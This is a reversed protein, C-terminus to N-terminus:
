IPETAKVLWAAAEPELFPLLQDRVKQHYTDLWGREVETLWEAVILHMDIPVLTLTEFCYFPRDAKPPSETVLVLNEIRIGFDDPKYYGPENSLIMGPQLAIGSGSKSIWQPGEHVNLFCGVGHGTGHDFDAGVEWLPQRALVDLQGGNTGKPFHVAALAIHGKLVRTFFARQEDTPTGIAITRTIDTTGEWYQGGSDLLLLSGSQLTKNTKVEPRYHIIAGNGGFGAITPFSPGHYTTDMRRFGELRDVVDLETVMGKYGSLWALFRTVALGDKLHAVRMGNQETENKCAKPLQILDEGFILRDEPFRNAIWVPTSHPNILLKRHRQVELFSSLGTEPIIELSFDFLQRVKNPVKVPDTVLTIDGKTDVFGMADVLPTFPFDNGRINLLWCLADPEGIYALDAGTKKLAGCIETLKLNSTKGAFREELLFISNLPRPARDSWLADIPNETVAEFFWGLQEAKKIWHSKEAVTHLWPDYAIKANKGLKGELYSFPELEATHIVKVNTPVQQKAQLTYRGDVFLVIEDPMVIAMGASGTFGTLWALREDAEVVYEGQYRDVRPVLFAQAGIEDRLHGQLLKLRSNHPETMTKRKTLPPSVDYRKPLVADKANFLARVDETKGREYM